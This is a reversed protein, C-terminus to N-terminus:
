LLRQIIEKVQFNEKDNVCNCDCDSGCTDTPAGCDAYDCGSCVDPMEKKPYYAIEKSVYM